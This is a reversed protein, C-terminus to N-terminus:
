TEAEIWLINAGEGKENMERAELPAKDVSTDDYVSREHKTECVRWIAPRRRDHLATIQQRHNSPQGPVIFTM